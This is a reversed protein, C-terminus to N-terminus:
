VIFNCITANLDMNNEIYTIIMSEFDIKIKSSILQLDKYNIKYELGKWYIYYDSFASPRSWLLLGYDLYGTGIPLEVNNPTNILEDHIYISIHQKDFNNNNLYHYQLSEIDRYVINYNQNNSEYIKDFNEKNQNNSLYSSYNNISRILNYINVKLSNGIINIM